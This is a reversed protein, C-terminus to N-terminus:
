QRLGIHLSQWFCGDGNWTTALTPRGDGAGDGGFGAVGTGAVTTILGATTVKRIRGNVSDAIYLNGAADISLGHPYSLAASTAPGGDGGYNGSLGTPGNGAVTSITGGPTVKRIRNNQTDAIYLNGSSDVAVASPGWLM